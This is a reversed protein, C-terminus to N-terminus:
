YTWLDTDWVASDWRAFANFASVPSTTVLLTEAGPAVAWALESVRLNADIRVGNPLNKIYRIVDGLRLDPLPGVALADLLIPDLFYSALVYTQLLDEALTQAAAASAWTQAQLPRVRRGKFDISDQDIAVVQTDDVNTLVVHNYLNEDSAHPLGESFPVTGDSCTDSFITHPQAHDSRGVLLSDRDLYLLAGDVDILVLGGDSEATVQMTEWVPNSSFTGRHPMFSQDLKTARTLGAVAALYALRAPTIDGEGGIPYSIGDIGQDLLFVADYAEITVRALDQQLTTDPTTPYDETWRTIRGYFRWDPDGVLRDVWVSILAGVPFALRALSYRLSDNRLEVVLHAAETESRELVVSTVDPAIDVWQDATEWLADPDDWVAVDWLTAEVLGRLVNVAVHVGTPCAGPLALATPLTADGPRAV